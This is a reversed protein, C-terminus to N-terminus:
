EQGGRGVALAISALLLIASLVFWFMWTLQDGLPVDVELAVVIGLVACLGGVAGVIAAMTGM